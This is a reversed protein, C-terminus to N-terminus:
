LCSKNNHLYKLLEGYEKNKLTTISSMSLLYLVIGTSIQYFNFPEGNQFLYDKNVSTFNIYQWDQLCSVSSPIDLVAKDSSIVIISSDQKLLELEKSIIGIQLALLNDVKNVVGTFPVIIQKLIDKFMEPSDIGKTLRVYVVSYFVDSSYMNLYRCTYLIEILRKQSVQDGDIVFIHYKRNSPVYTFSSDYTISLNDKRLNFYEENSLLNNFVKEESCEKYKTFDFDASELM